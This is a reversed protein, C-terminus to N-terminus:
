GVAVERPLQPECLSRFTESNDRLWQLDQALEKFRNARRIKWAMDTKSSLKAIKDIAKSAVRAQVFLPLCSREHGELPDVATYATVFIRIADLPGRKRLTDLFGSIAKALDFIRVEHRSVGFDIVAALRNGQFLVNGPKYDGHIVVRRLSEYTMSRLENELKDLNAKFTRLTHVTNPSSLQDDLAHYNEQFWNLQEIFLTPFSKQSKPPTGHYRATLKHYRALTEAWVTLQLPNNPDLSTGEIFPYLSYPIGLINVYSRQDVTLLPAAVPFGQRDLFLMLSNQREISKGIDPHKTSIKLASGKKRRLALVRDPTTVRYTMYGTGERPPGEQRLSELGYESTIGSIVNDPLTETSGELLASTVEKAM